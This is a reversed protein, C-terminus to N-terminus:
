LVGVLDSRGSTPEKDMVKPEQSSVKVDSNRKRGRRCLSVLSILVLASFVFGGVAIGIIARWNIRGPMNTDQKQDDDDAFQTAQEAAGSSQSISYQVYATSYDQYHTKAAALLREKWPVLDILKIYSKCDFYDDMNDYYYNDTHPLLFISDDPISFVRYYSIISTMLSSFENTHIFTNYWGPYLSCDDVLAKCKAYLYYTNYPASTPTEVSTDWSTMTPTTLEPKSLHQVGGQISLTTYYKTVNSQFVETKTTPICSIYEQMYQHLLYTPVPDLFITTFGTSPELIQTVSGYLSPNASSYFDSNDTFDNFMMKYSASEYADYTQNSSTSSTFFANYQYRNITPDATKPIQSPYPAAWIIECLSTLTWFSIKMM